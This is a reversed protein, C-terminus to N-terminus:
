KLVLRELKSYDNKM